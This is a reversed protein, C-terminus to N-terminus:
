HPSRPRAAGPVPSTRRGGYRTAGGPPPRDRVSREEVRGTPRGRGGARPIVEVALSLPWLRREAPAPSNTVWFRTESGVVWEGMYLGALTIKYQREPWPDAGTDRYLYVTNWKKQDDTSVMNTQVKGFEGDRNRYLVAKLPQQTKTSGGNAYIAAEHPDTDPDDSVCVVTSEHVPSTISWGHGNVAQPILFIFAAPGLYRFCRTGAHRHLFDLM